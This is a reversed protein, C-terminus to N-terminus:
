KEGMRDLARSAIVDARFRAHESKREKIERLAKEAEDLTDICAIVDQLFRRLNEHLEAGSIRLLRAEAEKRLRATDM